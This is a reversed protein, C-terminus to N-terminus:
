KGEAMQAACAEARKKLEEPPVDEVHTAIWLHNGWPDKVGGMRDGWFQKDLKMISESGAEIARQYTKDADEVYFYLHTPVPGMQECAEGIMVMSDGIRVEAHMIGGDAREIREVLAADFVRQLFGILGPANKVTLYPTVSHYGKPISNVKSM